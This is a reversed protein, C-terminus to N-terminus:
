SENKSQNLLKNIFEFNVMNIDHEQELFPLVDNKAQEWNIDRIKDLMVQHWNSQTPMAGSWETQLLANNLQILNPQPWSPDSLYWILDYLDRGKTYKRTLVAHLKGALLSSKDYHLLNLMAFRRIIKTTLGAGLPPNTDIELKIALVEDAHPSIGIEYLIGHFKVWASLVTQKERLKIEVDYTELKLEKKVGLMLKRFRIDQEPDCISFDLDVSYRSFRYLFRLATGGVVAWDTFAGHNQLALLIRAQLYERAISRKDSLSSQDRIINLLVEKM